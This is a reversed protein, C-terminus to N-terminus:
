GVGAAFARCAMARELDDVAERLQRDLTPLRDGHEAIVARARIAVDELPRDFPFLRTIYARVFPHEREAAIEPISSFFREVYPELIVAQHPHRFGAMAARDLHFSGYGAGNIRSWADAKTAPDPRGVAAALSERAGRDTRDAAKEAELRAAAGPLDHAVAARVIGWRMDQDLQLGPRERRGDAVEALAAVDAPDALAAIAARLWAIRRDGPPLGPLTAMAGAVFRSSEAIRREEPVYRALAGTALDLVTTVIEIEKEAPLLDGVLGLFATSRLGRDRVMQGLTGWLQARLLADDLRPLLAPLNALSVDDLAVKAYAHDDHNPFVLLPAPLGVAEAVETSPGDLRAPVGDVAPRGGPGDHVLAVRTVHPRVIAHEAPATQEVALRTLRGDRAEWRAALTNLSATELWSGAWVSLSRGSGAELAALFDALTANGWAH